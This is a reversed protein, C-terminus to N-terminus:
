SFEALNYGLIHKGKHRWETESDRQLVLIGQGRVLASERGPMMGDHFQRKKALIIRGTFLSHRHTQPAQVFIALIVNDEILLESFTRWGCVGKM